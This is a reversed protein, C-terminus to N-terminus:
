RHARGSNVAEPEKDGKERLASDLTKLLREATYPKPLFAAVGLEAAAAREGDALGSSAIITIRPNINQLARIAAPGDMLPMMMDTLVAAVEDQHAVYLEVAEAGERAVLVRYGFTELATRTIERVPAEDDVVLITEGHGAPLNSADAGAQATQASAIAPFYIRLQTGGGPESYVNIFGGHSRVIGQDPNMRAYHDDFIMNEAAITLTGGQPMADRANVCLNM